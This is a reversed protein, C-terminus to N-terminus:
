RVLTKDCSKQQECQEQTCQQDATNLCLGVRAFSTRLVLNAFLAPLWLSALFLVAAFLTILLLTILFLAALLLPLLRRTRADRCGLSGRNYLSLVAAFHHTYLCA